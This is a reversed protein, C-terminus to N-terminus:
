TVLHRISSESIEMTFPDEKIKDQIHHSKTNWPLVLPHKEIATEEGTVNLGASAMQLVLRIQGLLPFWLMNQLLKEASYKQQASVTKHRLTLYRQVTPSLLMFPDAHSELFCHYECAIQMSQSPFDGLFATVTM